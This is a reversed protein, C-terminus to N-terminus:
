IDFSSFSTGCVLFCPLAFHRDWLQIMQASINKMQTQWSTYICEIYAAAAAEPDVNDFEVGPIDETQKIFAKYNAEDVKM